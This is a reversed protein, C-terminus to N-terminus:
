RNVPNLSHDFLIEFEEHPLQAPSVYRPIPALKKHIKSM